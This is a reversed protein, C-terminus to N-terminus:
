PTWQYLAPGWLPGTNDICITLKRLLCAGIKHLCVQMTDINWICLVTEGVRINICLHTPLKSYQWMNEKARNHVTSERGTKQPSVEGGVLTGFVRCGYIWSTRQWFFLFFIHLFSNLHHNFLRVKLAIIKHKDMMLQFQSFIWYHFSSLHGKNKEGWLNWLRWYIVSPWQTGPVFLEDVLRGISLPHKKM